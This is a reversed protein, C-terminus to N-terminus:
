LFQLDDFQLNGHHFLCINGGFHQGNLKASAVHHCLGQINFTTSGCDLIGAVDKDLFLVSWGVDVDPVLLPLAGAMPSFICHPHAEACGKKNEGFWM